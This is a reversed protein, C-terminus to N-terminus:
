SSAARAPRRRRSASNAENRAVARASFARALAACARRTASFARRRASASRTSAAAFAFDFSSASFIFPAVCAGLGCSLSIDSLRRCAQAPSGFVGTGGCLLFRLRGALVPAGVSAGSRPTSASQVRVKERFRLEPAFLAREDPAVLSPLSSGTRWRRTLENVRERDREIEPRRDDRALASPSPRVPQKQSSRERMEGERPKKTM